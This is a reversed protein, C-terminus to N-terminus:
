WRALAQAARPSDNTGRFLTIEEDSVLRSELLLERLYDQTTLSETFIVLKSDGRGGAARDLVLGVAQILARAKSDDALAKARSIFAEVRALEARIVPAAPPAGEDVDITEPEDDELDNRFVAAEDTDGAGGRADAMRRLRDAVRALSASLARTSSA